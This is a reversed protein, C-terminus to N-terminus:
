FIGAGDRDQVAATHQRAEAALAEYDPAMPDPPTVDTGAPRAADACMELGLALYHAQPDGCTLRLYAAADALHKRVTDPDFAILTESM